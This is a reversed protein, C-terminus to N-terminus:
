WVDFGGGIGGIVSGLGAGAVTGVGPMVLTGLGAGITAGDTGGQVAGLFDFMGTDQGYSETGYSGLTGTGTMSGNFYQGYDLDTCGSVVINSRENTPSRAGGKALTSVMFGYYPPVTMIVGANDCISGAPGCDAPAVKGPGQMEDTSKSIQGPNMWGTFNAIYSNYTGDPNMPGMPTIAWAHGYVGEDTKGVGGIRKPEWVDAKDHPYTVVGGDVTVNQLFATIPWTGVDEALKPWTIKTPDILDVGEEYLGDMPCIKHRITVGYNSPVYDILGKYVGTTTSNRDSIYGDDCTLRLTIKSIDPDGNLIVSENGNAPKTTTSWGNTEKEDPNSHFQFISDGICSTVGASTWSTTYPRPGGIFRGPTRGNVYKDNYTTSLEDMGDIKLDVKPLLSSAFNVKVSDTIKQTPQNKNDCKISFTLNKPTPLRIAKTGSATVNEGYNFGPFSMQYVELSPNLLNAYYSTVYDLDSTSTAYYDKYNFQSDTSTAYLKCNNVGKGLWSLTYKYKDKAVSVTPSTDQGNVRLDVCPATCTTSALAYRTLNEIDEADPIYTQPSCNQVLTPSGGTCGAPYSAAVTRTQYANANCASWSSYAFSSCSSGVATSPTCSQVLVPNGGTCNAPYSSVKTRTQYANANCASWPSYVFSSCSSSSLTSDNSVPAYATGTYVVVWDTATGGPGTCTIGFTTQKSIGSITQSGTVPKSNSGSTCSTVNKSTWMLTFASGASVNVYSADLAGVRIDVFPITGATNLSLGANETNVGALVSIENLKQRTLTGVFGNAPSIGYKQQFKIVAVKTAEGFYLTEKGPSGGGSNAVRTAIDRNLLRQLIIVDQGSSGVTLDQGFVGVISTQGRLSLAMERAKAVKDPAIAGAAILIDIIDAAEANTIESEASVKRIDVLYSAGFLLFFTFISVITIKYFKNM